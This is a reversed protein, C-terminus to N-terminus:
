RDDHHSEGDTETEAPRRGLYYAGVLGVFLLLSVIEVPLWYRAFLFRGFDAPSVTAAALPTGATPDMLILGAALVLTVGALILPLAMSRRDFQRRSAQGEVTMLIFLFLVMIAGAYLIVELAALLPAGLLYFLCATGFFSVILCVVAHVPERRTVAAVTATLIVAALLYFIVTFITM